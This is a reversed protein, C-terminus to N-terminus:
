KVRRLHGRQRPVVRCPDTAGHRTEPDPQPEGAARRALDARYAAVIADDDAGSAALPATCCRLLAIEHVALQMTGAQHGGVAEVALLAFTYATQMADDDRRLPVDADRLAALMKTLVLLPTTAAAM